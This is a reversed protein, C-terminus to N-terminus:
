RRAERDGLGAKFLALAEVPRSGMQLATAKTVMAEGLTFLLRYKEAVILAQEATDLAKQWDLNRYYARGLKALMDARVAPATDAPLTALTTELMQIAEVVHGQDIQSRGILGRLGHSPPKTM